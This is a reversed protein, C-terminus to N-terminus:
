SCLVHDESLSHFIHWCMEADRRGLAYIAKTNILEEMLDSDLGQLKQVLFPLLSGLDIKKTLPM